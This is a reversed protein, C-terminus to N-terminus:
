RRLHRFYSRSLRATRLIRAPTLDLYTRYGCFATKSLTDHFIRHNTHVIEAFIDWPKPSGVFHIIAQTDATIPKANPYTTRNFAPTLEVFQNKYFVYNLLTQDATKLEAPHLRGFEICRESIKSERWGKLDMVMVGSNFYKAKPDLGLSAYFVSEISYEFTGIGAVGLIYPSLDLNVLPAIDLKVLLDSDLYIVREEQLLNPLMVKAFA